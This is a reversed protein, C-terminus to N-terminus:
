GISATDLFIRRIRPYGGQITRKVRGIAERIEAITTGPRFRLEILLLVEEPGLYQTRLAGVTEVAPDAAILARLRDLTAREVGEGVLLGKSEYVMVSATLCLLIGILVSSAGDIWPAQLQTSLFIGLFALALGLLAASDELLMAFTAPNKTAQITEVFGRGRREARFAVLGYYWSTGEFVAAAALVAYSWAQNEPAKPDAMHLIGTVIAMGGGLAFILVGVVLTWFYFEHGYGLPHELDAAKRSRRMGYLLLAGNSTDVMSHIAESLMASSGSFVAAIFKTAAILLNGAVAALVAQRTEGPM